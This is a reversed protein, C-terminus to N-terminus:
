AGMRGPVQQRGSRELSAIVDLYQSVTEIQTWAVKNQLRTKQIMVRDVPCHPPVASLGLCWMYKLQLNLLKQAVGIKYGSSGLVGEGISTGYESLAAIRRCHKSDSVQASCHPLLKRAAFAIIQHRFRKRRAESVGKELLKARQVSAGWSLIWFESIIFNQQASM